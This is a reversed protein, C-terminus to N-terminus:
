AKIDYHEYLATAFNARQSKGIPQSQTDPCFGIHWHPIAYFQILFFHPPSFLFYLLTPLSHRNVGQGIANHATHM